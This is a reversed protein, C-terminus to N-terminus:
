SKALWGGEFCKFGQHLNLWGDIFDVWCNSLNFPKFYRKTLILFKCFIIEYAIDKSRVFEQCKGKSMYVIFVLANSNSSM